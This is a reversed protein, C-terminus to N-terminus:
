NLLYPLSFVGVIFFGLISIMYLIILTKDFVSIESPFKKSELVLKVKPIAKLKQTKGLIIRGYLSSRVTILKILYQNSIPLMFNIIQKQIERSNIFVEKLFPDYKKCFRIAMIVSLTISISLFFALVTYVTFQNIFILLVLVSVIIIRFIISFLNGFIVKINNELM